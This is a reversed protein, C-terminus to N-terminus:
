EQLLDEGIGYIYVVLTHMKSVDPSASVPLFVIWAKQAFCLIDQKNIEYAKPDSPWVPFRQLLFLCFYLTDRSVKIM